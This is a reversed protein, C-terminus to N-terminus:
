APSTEQCGDISLRSWRAQLLRALQASAQPPLWPDTDFRLDAVEAYLPARQRGLERLVQESKELLNRQRFLDGLTYSTLSLEPFAVIAAGKEEAERIMQVIQIKNKKLNGVAVEPVAAAVRILGSRM